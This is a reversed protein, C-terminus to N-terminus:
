LSSASRPMAITAQSAREFPGGFHSIDSVWQDTSSCPQNTFIRDNKTHPGPFKWRTAPDCVKEPGSSGRHPGSHDRGRAAIGALPPMTGGVAGRSSIGTAWCATFLRYRRVPSRDAFALPDHSRVRGGSGFSGRCHDERIGAHSEIIPRKRKGVWASCPEVRNRRSRTSTAARPRKAAQPQTLPRRRSCDGENASCTPRKNKETQGLDSILWTMREVM